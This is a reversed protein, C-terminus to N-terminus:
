DLWSVDDLWPLNDDWHGSANNFCSKFGKVINGWVKQVGVYVQKIPTTGVFINLIDKSNTYIM